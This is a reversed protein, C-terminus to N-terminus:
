QVSCMYADGMCAQRRGVLFYFISDGSDDGVQDPIWPKKDKGEYGPWEVFLLVPNGIVFTPFSLLLRRFPSTGRVKEKDEM